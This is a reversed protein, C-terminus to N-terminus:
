RDTFFPLDVIEVLSSRNTPVIRTLSTVVDLVNEDEM